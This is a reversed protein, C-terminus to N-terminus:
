TEPNQECVDPKQKKEKSLIVTYIMPLIITTILSVVVIAIFVENGLTILNAAELPDLAAAAMEQYHALAILGVIMAVEGRPMM